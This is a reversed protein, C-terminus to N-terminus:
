PLGSNRKCAEMTEAENDGTLEGYKGKKPPQSRNETQMIVPRKTKERWKQVVFIGDPGSLSFKRLEPWRSCVGAATPILLIRGLGTM